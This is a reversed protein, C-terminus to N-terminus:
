NYEVCEAVNTDDVYKWRDQWGELLDNIVVLFLFPGLVTGQPVGGNLKQWGSICPGINVRQGRGALFNTIWNIIIGPVSMSSLKRLLTNHDIHDFAKAFDLLFVRIVNKPEDSRNLLYHIFSLLAHTTSSRKLSGYQRKDIQDIISKMLWDAVFQECFNDMTPTLSIPRLDTNIDSLCKGQQIPIVDVRKWITPVLSQQISANLISAIPLALVLSNSKLIWNPILDPGALKLTSIASLKRYVDIESIIFESPVDPYVDGNHVDVPVSHIEELHQTVHVFATNIEEALNNGSIIRGESVITLPLQKKPYGGFQKVLM